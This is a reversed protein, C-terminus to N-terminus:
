KKDVGRIIMILSEMEKEIDPTINADYVDLKKEVLGSELLKRLHFALINPNIRKGLIKELGDRIETWKAGNSLTIIALILVRIESSLAEYRRSIDRAMNLVETM